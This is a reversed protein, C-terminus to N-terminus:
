SASICQWGNNTGDWVSAFACSQYQLTLTSLAAPKWLNDGSNVALSVTNVGSDVKCIYIIKGLCSQAYPLTVTIAGSTCDCRILTPATEATGSATLTVVNLEAYNYPNGKNYNEYNFDVVIGSGGTQNNNVNAPEVPSWVPAPLGM